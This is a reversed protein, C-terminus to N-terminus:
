PAPPPRPTPLPAGEVAGLLGRVIVERQVLDWAVEEAYRVIEANTEMAIGQRMALLEEAGGLAVAVATEASQQHSGVGAIGFVNTGIRGVDDKLHGVFASAARLDDGHTGGGQLLARYTRLLAAVRAEMEAAPGLDPQPRYLRDFAAEVDPANYGLDAAARLVGAVEELAGEVGRAASPSAGMGQILDYILELYQQERETRRLDAYDAAEIRRLVDMVPTTLPPPLLQGRAPHPAALLLVLAGATGAARLRYRMSVGRTMM